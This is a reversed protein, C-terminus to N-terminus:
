ARGGGSGGGVVELSNSDLSISPTLRIPLHIVSPDGVATWPGGGKKIENIGRSICNNSPLFPFFFFVFDPTIRPVSWPCM